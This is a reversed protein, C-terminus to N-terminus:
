SFWRALATVLGDESVPPCIDDAANHVSQPAQGMAVSWGAWQLMEVDNVGDGIALTRDAAIGLDKRLTELASAKNVTEATLDVVPEGPYIWCHVGAVSSEALAEALEDASHGPWHVALRTTPECALRDLDVSRVVGFFTDVDSVQGTVRVGVGPDEAVFVGGPIRHRLDTVVETLDFANQHLVEGTGADLVVAGNSCVAYGKGIDLARLFPMTAPALRGTCLVLNADSRLVAAIRDRVVATVTTHADRDRHADPHCITGDIDVAVILPMALPPRTRGTSRSDVTNSM